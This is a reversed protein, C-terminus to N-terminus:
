RCTALILNLLQIWAGYEQLCSMSKMILFPESNSRPGFIAEVKREMKMASTSTSVNVNRMTVSSVAGRTTGGARM